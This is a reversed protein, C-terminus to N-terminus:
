AHRELVIGRATVADRLGAVPDLVPWSILSAQLPATVQGEPQVFGGESSPVHGSPDRRAALGPVRVHCDLQHQHEPKDEVKGKHCASQLRSSPDTHLRSNYNVAPYRRYEAM